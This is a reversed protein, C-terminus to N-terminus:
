RGERERADRGGGGVDQPDDAPMDREAEERLRRKNRLRERDAEFRREKASAKGTPVRGWKSRHAM